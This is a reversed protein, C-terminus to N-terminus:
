LMKNNAIKKDSWGLSRAWARTMKVEEKDEGEYITRLFNAFGSLGGVNDLVSLGQKHLCVPRHQDIVIEKAQDIEFWSIAHQSLLDDFGDVKTIEVIWDDGFDYNYILKHTVPFVNTDSLPEGQAALVQKVELRELLSETGAEIYLDDAMEELTLDIIPKLKGVDDEPSDYVRLLKFRELLAEVDRKAVEPIELLGHYHYPGTYKKKLWTNMSGRKYDDDWFLDRKFESPPQFLVGVLESWGKVTDNTLKSYVEEPLYFSRLHSNQFGFLKQIVYHLHHLPMDSPIVIDRTITEGTLSEGYRKMMVKQDDSLAEDTLTLHLRIPKNELKKKLRSFRNTM